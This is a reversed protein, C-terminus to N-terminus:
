ASSSPPHSRTSDEYQRDSNNQLLPDKVRMVVVAAVIFAGGVVSVAADSGLVDTLKGFVIPFTIAGITGVTNYASAAVAQISAECTTMALATLYCYSVNWSSIAGILLLFRVIFVVDQTGIFSIMMLGGVMYVVATTRARNYTVWRRTLLCLTGSVLYPIATMVIALAASGHASGCTKASEDDEEYLMGHIILTAWFILISDLGFSILCCGTCLRWSGNSVVKRMEAWFHLSGESEDKGQNAAIWQKEEAELFSATEPTAPLFLYVVATYLIPMIGGVVFVLRWGRVNVYVAFRLLGASLPSVLPMSFSVAAFIVSYAKTVYDPPYFVPVLYWVAPFVGGQAVGAFLRLAYFQAANQIFGLAAGLCGWSFLLISIWAPAGFRKLMVNSAMQSLLYGAYFVAVGRGYAEHTLKLDRCLGNAVFGVNSRDVYSLFTVGALFILFRRDLKRITSRAVDEALPIYAVQSQM